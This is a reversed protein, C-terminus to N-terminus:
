AKTATIAEYIPRMINSLDTEVSPNSPIFVKGEVRTLPQLISFCESYCDVGAVILAEIRDKRNKAHMLLGAAPAMWAENVIVVSRAELQRAHEAIKRYVMHKEARDHMFLWHHHLAGEGDVIFAFPLAHGDVRLITLATHFFNGCQKQLPTQLELDPPAELSPGYRARAEDHCDSDLKQPMMASWSLEGSHPKMWCGMWDRKVNILSQSAAELEASGSGGFKTIFAGYLKLLARCCHELVETVEQDPLLNHVWRRDVRLIGEEIRAFDPVFSAIAQAYDHPKTEPPVETESFPESYWGRYPTVRAHSHGGLDGEKVVRNRADVLWRMLLDGRLESQREEYWPDFGELARCAEQLVWTSSRLAEIAANLNRRFESPEFYSQRVRLTSVIGDSLRSQFSAIDM